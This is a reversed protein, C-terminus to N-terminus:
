IPYGTVVKRAARHTTPTVDIIIPKRVNQDTGHARIRMTWATSGAIHNESAIRPTQPNQRIAAGSHVCVGVAIQNGDRRSGTHPPLSEITEVMALRVM